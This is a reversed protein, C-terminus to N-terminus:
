RIIGTSCLAQLRDPVDEERVDVVKDDGKVDDEEIEDVDDQVYASKFIEELEVRDIGLVRWAAELKKKLSHDAWGGSLPLRVVGETFCTVVRAVSSLDLEPLYLTVLGEKRGTRGAEVLHCDALLKKGM